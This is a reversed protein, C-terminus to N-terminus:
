KISLIVTFILGMIQFDLNKMTNNYKSFIFKHINVRYIKVRSSHTNQKQHLTQRIPINNTIGPEDYQNPM